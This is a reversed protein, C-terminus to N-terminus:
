LVKFVSGIVVISSPVSGIICTMARVIVFVFTVFLALWSIQFEQM